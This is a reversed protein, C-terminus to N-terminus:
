RKFADRLSNMRDYPSNIGPKGFCEALETRRSESDRNDFQVFRCLGPMQEPVVITGTYRIRQSEPDMMSRALHFVRAQEVFSLCLTAAIFLLCAVLAIRERRNLQTLIRM